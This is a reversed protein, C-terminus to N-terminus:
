EGELALLRQAVSSADPVGLVKRLAARVNEAGDAAGAIHGARQGEIYGLVFAEVAPASRVAGPLVLRTYGDASQVVGSGIRWSWGDGGADFEHHTLSEAEIM